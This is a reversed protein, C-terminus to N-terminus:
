FGFGGVMMARHVPYPIGWAAHRMSAATYLMCYLPPNAFALWWLM